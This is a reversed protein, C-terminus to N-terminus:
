DQSQNASHFPKTDLNPTDIISFFKRLHPDILYFETFYVRVYSLVTCKPGHFRSPFGVTRSISYVSHGEASSARLM